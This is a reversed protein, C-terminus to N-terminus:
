TKADNKGGKKLPHSLRPQRCMCLATAITNEDAFIAHGSSTIPPLDSSKKPQRRLLGQRIHKSSWPNLSFLAMHSRGKNLTLLAYPLAAPWYPLNDQTM